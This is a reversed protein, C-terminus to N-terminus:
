IHVLAKDRKRGAKSGEEGEREGLLIEPPNVMMPMTKSIPMTLSMPMTNRGELCRTGVCFTKKSLSATGCAQVTPWRRRVEVPLTDTFMEAGNM